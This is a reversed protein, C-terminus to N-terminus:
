KSIDQPSEPATLRVARIRSIRREEVLLITFEIGALTVSPHDNPSPIRELAEILLGGIADYDSDNDLEIDFLREVDDIPITGDLEYCGDALKQVLEEEHDYEDQISGVISEVLDEMSVIGATGGYEDVAIAVQVRKTRFQTFLDVCSINEPIFLVSRMYKQADFENAPKGIFCLLDKVYLVGTIDDIDDDYVPIRSYGTKIAVSAIEDLTASKPLAIMDMRHTMVASVNRDDFEFINNIMDKESQEIEGKESGVDVMMRIEEETAQEYGNEGHVGFLHALLRALTSNMAAFPYFLLAAARCFYALSLAVTQPHCCAIRYPLLLCLVHITLVTILFALVLLALGALSRISSVNRLWQTAPSLIAFSLQEWLLLFVAATCSFSALKCGDMLFSPKELLRAVTRERANESSVMKKVASDNLMTLATRGATLLANLIILTLIAIISPYPDM